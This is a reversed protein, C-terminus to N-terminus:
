ASDPRESSSPAEAGVAAAASTYDHLKRYLTRRDLGLLKSARSKNGGVLRLVRQIYRREVEEMPVVDTTEDASLVFYDARYARIRAPLDDVAIQDYRALAVAREMSNELERVNGPWDYDTLREAVAVPMSLTRGRQAAFRDLFYTALALVDSGRERLPPVRIQVVSIRYYLDDRFRRERVEAELDRNTAVVLRAEFPTETSDGVPRVRREQLARLLKPQMELPMEGIEDLFLTGGSARVFLGERAQKADTFAGRAHGFLESELLTQPVAACNIAVFPGRARTSKAHIARAVLEKGTGTEGRIMVSADSPGVRDVLDIVARMAASDGLLPRGERSALGERICRVERRLEEHRMARAVAVALLKTDIPKPLFDFAGARMAAVATEMSGRGTVVIVTTNPRAALLHACFAIGDMGEMGIDTIVLPINDRGRLLDLAEAASSATHVTFGHASLAARVLDCQDVDDDVFLLPNRTERAGLGQLADGPKRYTTKNTTM